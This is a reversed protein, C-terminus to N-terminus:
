FLSEQYCETEAAVPNIWLVEQRKAGAEASVDITERRWHSLREDYVPHDYGSLFVPGPHADLLSILNIHDDITMEHKYHCKTGQCIASLGVPWAGNVVPIIYFEHYAM